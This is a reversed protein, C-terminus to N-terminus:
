RNIHQHQTRWFEKECAHEVRNSLAILAPSSSANLARNSCSASSSTRIYHLHWTRIYHLNSTRIYHLNPNRIYHLNSTRIYHLTNYILYCLLHNQFVISTAKVFYTASLSSATNINPEASKEKRALYTMRERLWFAGEFRLGSPFISCLVARSKSRLWISLTPSYVPSTWIKLM